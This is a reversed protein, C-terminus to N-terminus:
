SPRFEQEDDGDDWFCFTWGNTISYTEVWKAYELWRIELNGKPLFLFGQRKRTDGMSPKTWKM